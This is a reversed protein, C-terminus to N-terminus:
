HNGRQTPPFDKLMKALMGRLRSSSEDSSLGVLIEARTFGLFVRHNTKGDVLTIALSGVASSHEGSIWTHVGLDYSIWFDPPPAKARSYGRAAFEADIAKKLAADPDLALIRPDDPLRNARNNWGYNAVRPFPYLPDYVSSVEYGNSACGSISVLLFCLLAIALRFRASM